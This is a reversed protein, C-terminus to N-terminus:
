DRSYYMSYHYELEVREVGLNSKFLATVKEPLNNIGDFHYCNICHCEITLTESVGFLPYYHKDDYYSKLEATKKYGNIKVINGNSQQKLFLEITNHLKTGFM